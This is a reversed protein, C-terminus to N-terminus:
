LEYDEPHYLESLMRYVYSPANGGRCHYPSIINYSSM